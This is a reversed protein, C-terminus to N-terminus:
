QSPAPLGVSRTLAIFRPDSHLRQFEPRVNMLILGGERYQCAKELWTMALANEGLASYIQAINMTLDGRSKSDTLMGQLITEAKNREGALAYTAGLRALTWSDDPVISLAKQLDTVASQYNKTGVHVDALCLYAPLFNPDMDLAKQAEKQSETYRASYNLMEATDAKIILSLPDAKQASALQELAKDTRGQAAFWFAYWEHATAYNPNLNLARQFEKESGPWDWEYHMKVFALSTHADALTEDLQLAKIAAAKAQPMAEKRPIAPNPSSGLLAYGDALGAYAPAYKPDRAIAKQFYDIAKVFNAEGRKNWFYRGKLYLEYADPDVARPIALRASEEPSLKLKIESAIAGAVDSQLLLIDRIGRDYDRAWLTTQDRTQILQATIRVRDGERTVSGQLIYDAGLEQGIERANKGAGKYQMASIRAIIALKAPDLDGLQSIMEETFGDAFYQQDAESSLNEFPLVALTVRNTSVHAPRRLHGRLLYGSAGILAIVVFTWAVIRFRSGSVRLSADSPIVAESRGETAMKVPAVFRYGRRPITEIYIQGNTGEGLAKRLTSINQALTGEEVFTDPWVRKLIEDKELVHGNREVLVLLTDLAKPTLPVREGQTSLVCEQSDLTFPGFTYFAKIKQPM